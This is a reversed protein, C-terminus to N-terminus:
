EQSQSGTPATTEWVPYSSDELRPYRPADSAGGIPHRPVTTWVWWSIASDSFKKEHQKTPYWLYETKEKCQGWTLLVVM